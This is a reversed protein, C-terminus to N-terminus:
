RQAIDWKTRKWSAAFSAQDSFFTTREKEHADIFVVFDYGPEPSALREAFHQALVNAPLTM